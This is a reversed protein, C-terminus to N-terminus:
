KIIKKLANYYKKSYKLPIRSGVRVVVNKYRYATLPIDEEWSFNAYMFQLSSLYALRMAADYNDRYVEVTCYVYPYKKDTFNAKSRYYNPTSYMDGKASYKKIKTISPITKKLEVCIQKATVKSAKYRKIKAKAQVPASFLLLIMLSTMVIRMVKKM